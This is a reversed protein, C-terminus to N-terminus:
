VGPLDSLMLATGYIPVNVRLHIHTVYLKDQEDILITEKSREVCLWPRPAPRVTPLPDLPWTRKEIHTLAATPTGGTATCAVYPRGPENDKVQLDLVSYM